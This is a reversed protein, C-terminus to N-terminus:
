REVVIDVAAISDIQAGFAGLHGFGIHLAQGDPGTYSTNSRASRFRGVLTVLLKCTSCKVAYASALKEFSSMDIRPDSSDSARTVNVAWPWPVGGIVVKGDCDGFLGASEKTARYEGRVEIITGVLDHEDAMANCVSLPQPSPQAAASLLMLGVILAAPKLSHM